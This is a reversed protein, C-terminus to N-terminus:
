LRREKGDIKWRKSDMEIARKEGKNKEKRKRKRKRKRKKRRKRGKRQGCKRVIWSMMLVQYADHDGWV